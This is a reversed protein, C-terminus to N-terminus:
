CGGATTSVPVTQQVAPLNLRFNGEVRLRARIPDAGGVEQLNEVEFSFSGEMVGTPSFTLGSNRALAVVGDAEEWSDLTFSLPPDTRPFNFLMESLGDRNVVTCDIELDFFNKVRNNMDITLEASGGPDAIDVISFILGLSRGTAAETGAVTLNLRSRSSVPESAALPPNLGASVDDAVFSYTTGALVPSNNSCLFFEPPCSGPFCEPGVDLVTVTACLFNDTGATSNGASPDTPTSSSCGLGGALCFVALVLASTLSLRRIPSM